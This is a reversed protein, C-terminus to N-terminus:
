DGVRYASWNYEYEHWVSVGNRHEGVENFSARPAELHMEQAVLKRTPVQVTKVKNNDLKDVYSKEQMSTEYNYQVFTSNSEQVLGNNQLFPSWTPFEATETRWNVTWEVVLPSGEIEVNELFIEGDGYIGGSFTFNRTEPGNQLGKYYYQVQTVGPISLVLNALDVSKGAILTKAVSLQSDKWIDNVTMPGISQGGYATTTAAVACVDGAKNASDLIEVAKKALQSHMTKGFLTVLEDLSKRKSYIDKVLSYTDKDLSSNEVIFEDINKKDIYGGLKFFDAMKSMMNVVSNVQTALAHVGCLNPLLNYTIVGHGKIKGNKDVTFTFTNQQEVTLSMIVQDADYPISSEDIGFMNSTFTGSTQKFRIEWNWGSGIWTGIYQSVDSMDPAKINAPDISAMLHNMAKLPSPTVIGAKDLADNLTTGAGEGKGGTADTGDDNIRYGYIDNFKEKTSPLITIKQTIDADDDLAQFFQTLEILNPDTQNDRSLGLLDQPFVKSDDTIHSISGITYNGITFVVPINTCNFDGNEGTIGTSGDGCEYSLGVIPSDILYGFFSQKIDETNLSEWRNVISQIADTDNMVTRIKKLANEVSQSDTSIGELVKMSAIYAPDNTPNQTDAVNTQTTLTKTFFVAVKVKNSILEQREVAAELDETSLSPYNEATLDTTLSLEMFTAVMDSRSMGNDILNTWYTIGEQDGEKGLSNKYIAKVFAENGMSGYTATFTPHTAFGSSLEKLTLLDSKGKAKAMDGKNKWYSLGAEDAARNFFSVYLSTIKSELDIEKAYLQTLLMIPILLVMMFLKNKM